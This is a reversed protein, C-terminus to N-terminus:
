SVHNVLKIPTVKGKDNVIYETKMNIQLWAIQITAGAASERSKVCTHSALYVM